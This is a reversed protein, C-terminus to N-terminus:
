PLAARFTAELPPYAPLHPAPVDQCKELFQRETQTPISAHAEDCWQDEGLIADLRKSMANSRHWAILRRDFELIQVKLARLQHGSLLLVGM